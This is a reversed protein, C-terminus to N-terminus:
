PEVELSLLTDILGRASAPASVELRLGEDDIGLAFEFFPCCGREAEALAAIEAAHLAGSRGFALRVRDPLRDISTSAALVRRWEEVRERVLAPELTCAIILDDNTM